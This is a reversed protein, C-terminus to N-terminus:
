CEVVMCACFFKGYQVQQQESGEVEQATVVDPSTM